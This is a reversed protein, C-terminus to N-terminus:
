LDRRSIMVAGAIVLFIGLVAVTAVEDGRFVVGLLMAVVPIGYATISARTGGLRGVLLAMCAFAFATGVIGAIAIAIFSSWGFSSGVLGVVGFPATWICSWALMRAMVPLSGYRHQLPASINVAMGYCVTAVLVLSVGLIRSSEGRISPFGICVVGIIGVALGILIIRRPWRGILMISIAAAFIPMAGNLMGTVASNVHQQAIPFLSFPVGVWVVSLVVIRLRDIPRIRSRSSPFACFAAAGLCVRMWTIFGPEFKELGIDVLLFSSGWIASIGFILAWDFISFSGRNTGEATVLIRTRESRGTM